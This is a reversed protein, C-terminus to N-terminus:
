SNTKIQNYRWKKCLRVPSELRALVLNPSVSQTLVGCLGYGYRRASGNPRQDGMFEVARRVGKAEIKAPVLAIPASASWFPQLQFRTAPSRSLGTPNMRIGLPREAPSPKSGEAGAGDGDSADAGRRPPSESSEVGRRSAKCTEETPFEGPGAAERPCAFSAREQM